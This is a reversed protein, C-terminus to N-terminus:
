SYPGLPSSISFKSRFQLDREKQLSLLSSLPAFKQVKKKFMDKEREEERYSVQPTDRM